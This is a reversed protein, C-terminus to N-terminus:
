GILASGNPQPSIARVFQNITSITPDIVGLAFASAGCTYFVVIGSQITATDSPLSTNGSM